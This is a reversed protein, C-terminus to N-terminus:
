WSKKARELQTQLETMRGTGVLESLANFRDGPTIGEVFERVLDQQLYVSRTLAVSLANIPEDTVLAQPWLTNLMQARGLDDRTSSGNSEFQFTERTGDFRRSLTVVQQDSTELELRVYAEGSESYMSVVSSATPGIRAIRGTLAWLIADFLSTKGTGNAGVLIVADAALDFSFSTAFARFGSIDLQKIKM